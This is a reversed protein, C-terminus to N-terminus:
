SLTIRVILDSDFRFDFLFIASGNFCLERDIEFEYSGLCTGSCIPLM